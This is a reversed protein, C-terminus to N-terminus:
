SSGGPKFNETLLRSWTFPDIKGLAVCPMQLPFGKRQFLHSSPPPLGLPASHCMFSLACRQQEVNIQAM